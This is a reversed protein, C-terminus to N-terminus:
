RRRHFATFWFIVMVTLLIVPVSPAPSGTSGIVRIINYSLNYGASNSVNSSVNYIGLRAYFHSGNAVASFGGDGFTWCWATPTNLSTDNFWTYSGVQVTGRSLSSIAIPKTVGSVSVNVWTVQTSINSGIVNTATLNISFNGFNFIQVPNQSTSFTIWTNNGTKNNFQYKWSTPSNISTDTFQVSLPATGSTPVATFSAVPSPVSVNVWAVQTSINSGYANTATLNISFNGFGFVQAPSQSTSFNIWTNNGTKNNFQYIWSTPSNTSTDTFKVALPAIGSTVNATFSAVPAVVTDEGWLNWEYLWAYDAPYNTKLIRMRYYRFMSENAALNLTDYTKTEGSTFTVGTRNDINTWTSADNSGMVFWDKPSEASASVGRATMVYKTVKHTTTANFDLQIWNPTCPDYIGSWWGTGTDHDFLKAPTYTTYYDQASATGGYYSFETVTASVTGIFALVLLAVILIKYKTKM